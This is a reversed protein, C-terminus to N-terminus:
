KLDELTVHAIGPKQVVIGGAKNALRLSDEIPNRNLISLALVAMFTDGAGAVDVASERQTDFVLTYPSKSDAYTCGREGDTIVAHDAYSQIQLSKTLDFESPKVLEFAEKANPKILFCGEYTSVDRKSWPDVFVPIKLRDAYQITERISVNNWLGKGYDQLIVADYRHMNKCLLEVFETSVSESINKLDEQDVRAIHTGDNVIRTKVIEEKEYDPIYVFPMSVLDVLDPVGRCVSYLKVVSNLKWLQEALNAAMGPFRETRHINIVPCNHEPSIRNSTGYMFEDIGVEGCVMIKLRSFDLNM